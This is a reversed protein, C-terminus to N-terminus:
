VWKKFIEESYLAYGRFQKKVSYGVGAAITFTVIIIYIYIDEAGLFAYM